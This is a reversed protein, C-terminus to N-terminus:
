DVVNASGFVPASVDSRPLWLTPHNSREQRRFRLPFITRVPGGADDEIQSWTVGKPDLLIKVGRRGVHGHEVGGEM